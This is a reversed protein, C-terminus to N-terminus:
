YDEGTDVAEAEAQSTLAALWTRPAPPPPPPSGRASLHEGLGLLRSVRVACPPGHQEEQLPVRPGPGPTAWGTLGAELIRAKPGLGWGDKDGSFVGTWLVPCEWASGPHPEM